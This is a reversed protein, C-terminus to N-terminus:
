RPNASTQSDAPLITTFVDELTRRVTDESMSTHLEVFDVVRGQEYMIQRATGRPITSEDNDLLFVTRTFGRGSPVRSSRSKPGRNYPVHRTCSSSRVAALDATVFSRQSRRCQPFRSGMEEELTTSRLGQAQTSNIAQPRTTPVRHNSATPGISRGVRQVLERVSRPQGNQNCYYAMTSEVGGFLEKGTKISHSLRSGYIAAFGCLGRNSVLRCVHLNSRKYSALALAGIAFLARVPLAIASM